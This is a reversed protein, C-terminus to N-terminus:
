IRGVSLCLCSQRCVFFTNSKINVFHMSVVIDIIFGFLVKYLSVNFWCAKVDKRFYVFWTDDSLGYGVSRM